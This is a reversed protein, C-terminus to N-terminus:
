GTLVIGSFHNYVMYIVRRTVFSLLVWYLEGLWVITCLEVGSCGPFEAQM